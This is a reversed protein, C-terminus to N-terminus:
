LDLKSESELVDERCDTSEAPLRQSAYLKTRDMYFNEEFGSSKNVAGEGWFLLSSEEAKQLERYTDTGSVIETSESKEVEAINRKKMKRKRCKSEEEEKKRMKRADKRGEVEM